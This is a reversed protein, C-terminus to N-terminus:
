TLENANNYREQAEKGILLPYDLTLSKKTIKDSIHGRFHNVNEELYLEFYYQALQVIGVVAIFLLLRSLYAQVSVDNLLWHIVAASLLLQLLPLVANVAVNLLMVVFIVPKFNYLEHLLMKLANIKEKMM